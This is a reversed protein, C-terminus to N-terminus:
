NREGRGFFLKQPIKQVSRIQGELIEPLTLQGELLRKDVFFQNLLLFNWITFIFLILLVIKLNKIKQYFIALGVEFLPFSSIFMRAGFGASLAAAWHGIVQWQTIFVLLFILFLNFYKKWGWLWGLLSFFLIPSWFFLGRKLSFLSAWLFNQQLSLTPSVGEFIYPQYWFYGYIIKQALLQPSFGIFWSLLLIILLKIYQKKNRLIVFILQITPILIWVADYPRITALIGGILGLLIYGITSKKLSTKKWYYLFLAASFFSVGHSLNPEISIYYFLNTALYISLTSLFSIKASFYNRLFRSLFYLGVYGYIINGIGVAIEYPPSFGDLPFNSGSLNLLHAVIDGLLMFPLWLIGPGISWHDPLLGTVTPTTVWFLRNILKGKIQFHSYYAFEPHFDLSHHFYLAHTYSYYGAGDGYVGFGVFYFHVLFLIISAFLGIFFLKKM